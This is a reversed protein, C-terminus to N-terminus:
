PLQLKGFFGFKESLIGTKKSIISRQRLKPVPNQM